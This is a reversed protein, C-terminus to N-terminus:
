ELGSLADSMEMMPRLLDSTVVYMTDMPLETILWKDDVKELPYIITTQKTGIESTEAKEALLKVLLEGMEEDSAGSFAMALAQTFYDSIADTFVASADTHTYEVTVKATDETVESSVIKYELTKAWKRFYEMLGGITEENEIDIESPIQNGKVCEDMAEMDFAKIADSFKKVTDDPSAKKACGAVFILMLCAILICVSKILKMKM